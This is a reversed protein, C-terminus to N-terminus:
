GVRGWDSLLAIAQTRESGDSAPRRGTDVAHSSASCTTASTSLSGAQRASGLKDLVRVSAVNGPLVLALIEDLGLVDFGFALCARGSETALGQGWVDLVFRYGVDVAELEPLYKLGSFGIM